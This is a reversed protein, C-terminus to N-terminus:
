ARTGDEIYRMINASLGLDLTVSGGTLRLRCHDETVAASWGHLEVNRVAVAAVRESREQATASREPRDLELDLHFGIEAASSDRFFELNRDLGVAVPALGIDTPTKPLVPMVLSGGEPATTTKEITIAVRRGQMRLNGSDSM